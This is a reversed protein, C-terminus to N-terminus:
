RAVILRFSAYHDASYYCADPAAPLAGGCVIREPGRAASGIPAVTYERYYGRPHPPLLRERNGFVEGDKEYPFPGGALISAHVRQADAHLTGLHVTAPATSRAPERDIQQSTRLALAETGAAAATGVAGLAFSSAAALALAIKQSARRSASGRLCLGTFLV